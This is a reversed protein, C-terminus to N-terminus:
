PIQPVLGRIADIKMVAAEVLQLSKENVAGRKPISGYHRLQFDHEHFPKHPVM